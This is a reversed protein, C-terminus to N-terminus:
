RWRHSEVIHYTIFLGMFTFSLIYVVDKLEILGKTFTHFHEQLSFYKLFNVVVPNAIIYQVLGIMWYFCIIGFTLIAAIIQNDT